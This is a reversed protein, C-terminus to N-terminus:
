VFFQIAYAACLGLTVFMFYLTMALKKSVEKWLYQMPLISYTGLTFLFLMVYPAPVGQTYLHQAVIVDLAIPVPLLVTVLALGTLALLSVHAFIVQLPLLEMVVSSIIAAILMIPVATKILSWLNKGYAQLVDKTAELLSQNCDSIIPVSCTSVTDETDSAKSVKQMVYVILPVLALLVLALLSYQIIGYAVPLGAFVMSVVVFNLTPSSFMFSLASEIRAKGRTLGCAIPVACNVCVAAPTGIMIGKLTNLYINNSLKPPYFEFATHLLAGLALGFSMGIRMSWIWNVLSVWVREAFGANSSAVILESNYIFSNVAQHGLEHAKHFLQPYRSGFWFLVLLGALMLVIVLLHYYCRIDKGGILYPQRSAPASEASFAVAM